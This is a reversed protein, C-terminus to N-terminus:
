GWTKKIFDQHTGSIIECNEVKCDELKGIGKMLTSDKADDHCICDVPDISRDSGLHGM